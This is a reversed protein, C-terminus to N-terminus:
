QRVCSSDVQRFDRLMLCGNMYDETPFHVLVYNRSYDFFAESDNKKVGAPVDSPVDLFSLTQEKKEDTTPVQYSAIQDGVLRLSFDGISTKLTKGDVNEDLDIMALVDIKSQGASDLKLWDFLHVASSSRPPKWFHLFTICILEFMAAMFWLSIIRFNM